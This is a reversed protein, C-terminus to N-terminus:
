SHEMLPLYHIEQSLIFSLSFHVMHSLLNMPTIFLTTTDKTSHYKGHTAEDFAMHICKANTLIENDLYAVFLRVM